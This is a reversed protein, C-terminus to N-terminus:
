ISKNFANLYKDIFLQKEKSKYQQIFRPHELITMKDFLKQEKNIAEIFKANKVGLVFVESTDLGLSIHQLMSQIMFRKVSQFLQPDDYYNANLWEGRSSRRVIALPFPSNIYFQSYFTEPGGFSEIVDYLFVSSVEHTRVSKMQIGCVSELRKTDTFPVGTVGAGHRSPNIGVIFKRIRNDKYYKYYFQSMVDMTEPNDLYPNLVKFEPPLCETYQLTRNFVIVKDAFTSQDM